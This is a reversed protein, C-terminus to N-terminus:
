SLNWSWFEIKERTTTGCLLRAWSGKQDSWLELTDAARVVQIRSEKPIEILSQVPVALADAIECLTGLSANTRAGEIQVIMARSIGSRSALEDLSWGRAGRWHRLNKSLASKIEESTAM